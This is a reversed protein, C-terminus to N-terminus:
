NQDNEASLHLGDEYSSKALAPSHEDKFLELFKERVESSVRQFSLSEASNIVHNHTFRINIEFPHSTELRWSELRLHIRANCGTIRTRSSQPLKTERSGQKKKVENSHICHCKERFLVRNGKVGYGKSLPMTSKSYSEFELFWEQAKEKDNIDVFADLEFQPISFNESTQYSPFENFNEILYTYWSSTNIKFSGTFFDLFFDLPLM